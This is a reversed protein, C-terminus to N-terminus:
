SDVRSPWGPLGSIKGASFDNEMPKTYLLRSWLLLSFIFVLWVFVDVIAFLILRPLSYYQILFVLFILTTIICSLLISGMQRRM